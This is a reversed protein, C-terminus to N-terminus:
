VFLPTEGVYPDAEASTDSPSQALVVAMLVVLAGAVVAQPHRVVWHAVKELIPPLAFEELRTEVADSRRLLKM